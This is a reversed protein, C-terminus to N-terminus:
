PIVIELLKQAIVKKTSKCIKGIFGQKSLVYVENDDTGFGIGKKGVDNIVMFDSHSDELKEKGIEILQQESLKYVAKFGILV